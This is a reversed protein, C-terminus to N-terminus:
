SIKAKKKSTSDSDENHGGFHRRMKAMNLKSVTAHDVIPKPYDEGVICHSQQQISLPATWPEYIYKAPFDKLVPVYKRIYDGDPDTKKGFAVPSYVRFYQHFFASASLWMWNGNNLSWDADLLYYEFVRAGKVWSQYLDGRTLFCAVAHRALHHIWGERRLQNMIADIFPYGTKGYRWAELLEDNEDWDIQRCIKNGEIKDFNETFAAVFYYFERWILQGELTVQRIGWNEARKHGKSYTELLKERFVKVSLCGFKLYPSLVTTSPLISNPKTEPKEFTCIWKVNKLHSELRILANTEGGPFLVLKEDFSQKEVETLCCDGELTPLSFNSPDLLSEEKLNPFPKSINPASCEPVGVKDLLNTFSSYTLCVNHNNRRYLLDLDYLTHSKSSAVEIGNSKCHSLIFEDRVKAYPESDEEFSLYNIEWKKFYEPLINKPNGRLVFLRSNLKRLNSDLDNLSEVLFRWRNPGAFDNRAFYPDWVFVPYVQTCKELAKLLAPNDHLRLGKRFWHIGILEKMELDSGPISQYKYAIRM